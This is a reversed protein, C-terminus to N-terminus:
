RTTGRRSSASSARPGTTSSPARSCPCCASTSPTACCRRAAGPTTGRSSRSLRRGGRVRACRAKGSELQVLDLLESQRDLVLDHVRLLVAAREEVPTAAWRRQAVRAADVAVASTAPRRCRCCRWRAGGDDPTRTLLEEGGDGSAVVRATLARVRAPDVAYTAHPDTEPDAVVEAM